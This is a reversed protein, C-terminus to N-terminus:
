IGLEKLKAEAVALTLPQAGNESDLLYAAGVTGRRKYAALVINVSSEEGDVMRPGSIVITTEDAHNCWSENATRRLAGITECMWNERTFVGSDDFACLRPSNYNIPVARETCLRCTM